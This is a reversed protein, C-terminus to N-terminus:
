RITPINVVFNPVGGDTHALLTGKLHKQILKMLQKALLYNLGDLDDIKKLLLIM